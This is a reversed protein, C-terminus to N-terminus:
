TQPIASITPTLEAVLREKLWGLKMADALNLAQEYHERAGKADGKHSLVECLYGHALVLSDSMPLRNLIAVSREGSEKAEDILEERNELDGQRFRSSCLLALTHGLVLDNGLREALASAQKAYAGGESWRQMEIAIAAMGSLTYTLQNLYGLSEAESRIARMETEALEQRNTEAYVRARVLLLNFLIDLRGSQRAAFLGEEVGRLAADHDGELFALRSWAALSELGLDPVGFRRSKQFGDRYLTYAKPLDGRAELTRAESLITLVQLRKSPTGRKRAEELTRDAEEVQRLRVYLEVIGHLIESEARPEGEAEALARRLSLIAESYEAHNRLLTAEVKLARIKAPGRPMAVTLHRIATRLADSYGLSLLARDQSSLLQAASRWNEAAVLHLFRERVAEVRHSRAYYRALTSHGARDEQLSLESLLAGRVAQLLEVRGDTTQQLIGARLMGQIRDVAFPRNQEVFSFPLPENALAIPLLTSREEPSLHGIVAAPLATATAEVGPNTVALQLLLPSGMSSQYVSEFREALGGLRDTLDHASARDLGRLIVHHSRIGSPQAPPHEQGLAFVLDQRHRLLAETFDTVFKRMDTTALQVDDVVAIMTRDKLSRGALDAVERGQPQRPLQAYYALQQAGIPSLAHALAVTFHHPSSGPRITFWFPIRDQKARRVFRSVLATKGMGAPAEVFVIAGGEVAYGSLERLEEKRGLFPNPPAPLASSILPVDRTRRQLQIKGAETIAYVFQKRQGGRVSGRHTRLLGERVLDDLPRSMSCPHYGLAGALERQSIGFGSEEPPAHTHVYDLIETPLFSRVPM